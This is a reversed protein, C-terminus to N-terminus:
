DVSSDHFSCRSLVLVRRVAARVPPSSPIQRPCPRRSSAPRTERAQSSPRIRVTRTQRRNTRPGSPRPARHAAKNNVKKVLTKIILAASIMNVNIANSFDNAKLMKIPIMKMFGASHVFFSINIQNEVILETLSTEIENVNNLDYQWIIHYGQHCRDRVYNLRELDRGCLIINYNKSFSIAMEEGMGSSAGTILIYEREKM